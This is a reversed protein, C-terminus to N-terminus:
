PPCRGPLANVTCSTTACCKVEPMKCGGAICTVSCREGGCYVEAKCADKGSCFIRGTPADTHVRGECAQEGQCSITCETAGTCDVGGKCAQKGSCEVKCPIGPPCTRTSECPTSGAICRIVCTGNECVGGVGPCTAECTALTADDAPAADSPELGADLPDGGAEGGAELSDELTTLAPSDICAAIMFAVSSATLVFSVRTM